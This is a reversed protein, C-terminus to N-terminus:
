LNLSIGFVHDRESPSGRTTRMSYQFATRPGQWIAGLSYGRLADIPDHFIGGLIFLDSIMPIEIGASWLKKNKLAGKAVMGYDGYIFVSSLLQYGAGLAAVPPREGPKELINEYTIGLRVGQFNPFLLGGTGNFIKTEGGGVERRTTYHGQIGAFVSTGLAQALGLRYESRDAYTQVGNVLRARSERVWAAGAKALANTGDYVGAAYAKGGANFAPIQSRSYYAFAASNQLFNLAAPNTFLAEDVIGARVGGGLATRKPSYAHATTFFSYFCCSFIFLATLRFFM